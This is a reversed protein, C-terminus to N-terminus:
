QTSVNRGISSVARYRVAENPSPEKGTDLQSNKALRTVKIQKSRQWM